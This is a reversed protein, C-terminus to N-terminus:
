TRDLHDELLVGIVPVRRVGLVVHLLGEVLAVVLDVGDQGLVVAHRRADDLREGGHAELDRHRALVTVGRREVPDREPRLSDGHPLVGEGEALSGAGHRRLKAGARRHVGDLCGAVKRLGRSRRRHVGGGELGRLAVGDLRDDEGRRRDRLLVELVGDVGSPRRLVRDARTDRCAARGGAASGLGSCGPSRGREVSISRRSKPMTTARTRMQIPSPRALLEIRWGTLKRVNETWAAEVATRAVPMTRTMTDRFMSRETPETTPSIPM